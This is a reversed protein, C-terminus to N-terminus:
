KFAQEKSPFAGNRVEDCYQRVAHTIVEHLDAYQKVFRPMPGPTIGLLDHIVLVQGDCDPGAGIGITPIRLTRTIEAALSTPVCELVLGFAGAQEAAQADQILRVDDRQVKYGGM